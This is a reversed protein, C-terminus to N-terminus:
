TSIGRADSRQREARNSSPLNFWFTLIAVKFFLLASWAINSTLDWWRVPELMSCAKTCIISSTPHCGFDGWKILQGYSCAPRIVRYFVVPNEYKCMELFGAFLFERLETWISRRGLLRYFLCCIMLIFFFARVLHSNFAVFSLSYWRKASEALFHKKLLDINNVSCLM